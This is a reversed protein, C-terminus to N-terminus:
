LGVQTPRNKFSFGPMISGRLFNSRLDTGRLSTKVILSRSQQLCAIVSMSFNPRDPDILTIAINRWDNCVILPM